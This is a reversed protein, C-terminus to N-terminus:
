LTEKQRARERFVRLYDLFTSIEKKSFTKLLYLGGAYLSVGLGITFIKAFLNVPHFLNIIFAMFFSAILIKHLNIFNFRFEIDKKVSLFILMFVLFHAITTAIAAGYIGLRPILIINLVINLVAAATYIIGILKTKNQIILVHQLAIALVLFLPFLLLYPILSVVNIYKLASVLTVIEKDLIWIGIIAPIGLLLCYKLLLNLLLNLKIRDKINWAHYIYPGIVINLINVFLYVINLLSYVYSYQGVKEAGLYFLIMYKDTASILWKSVIFPLLPISFVLATKLITRNFEKIDFTLINKRILLIILYLSLAAVVSLRIILVNKLNIPLVLISAIIILGWLHETIYSILSRIEVLKNGVFYSVFLYSLVCFFTILISLRIETGYDQIFSFNNGLFYSALLLSSSIFILVMVMFIFITSFVKRQYEKDRGPFEKNIYKNLALTLIQSLLSISIIIINYVGFTQQTFRRTLIMFLFFATAISAVRLLYSIGTQTIIKNYDGM